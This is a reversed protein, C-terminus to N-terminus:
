QDSGDVITGMDNGQALESRCPWLLCVLPARITSKPIRDNCTPGSSNREGKPKRGSYPYIKDPAGYLHTGNWEMANYRVVRIYMIRVNTGIQPDPPHFPPTDAFSLWFWFSIFHYHLSLLPLPVQLFFQFISDTSFLSKAGIATGYPGPWM